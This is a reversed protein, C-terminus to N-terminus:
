FRYEYEKKSRADVLVYQERFFALFNILEQHHLALERNYCTIYKKNHMVGVEGAGESWTTDVHVVYHKGINKVMQKFVELSFRPKQEANVKQAVPNSM